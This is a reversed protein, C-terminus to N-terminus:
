LIAVKDSTNTASNCVFPLAWFYVWVFVVPQTEGYLCVFCHTKENFPDPGLGYWAQGGIWVYVNYRERFVM